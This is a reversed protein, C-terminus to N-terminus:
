ARANTGERFQQFSAYAKTYTEQVLDEADHPDRPM